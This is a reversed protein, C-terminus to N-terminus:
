FNVNEIDGKDLIDISSIKIVEKNSSKQNLYAEFKTGFLTSPRLYQQMDKNNLWENCKNDIVTIFDDYEYGENFRAVIHKKTTQNNAKYKKGTRDNLYSLIDSIKDLSIKDLRYQTELNSVNQICEINQTTYSGNEKISIQSMEETYTTSKKRDKQITNHILWHKILVVGNEFSLIFRKALLIKMDDERAGVLRMVAKANGCFGDDDSNMNLHFYLCQATPPLDLFADTETIKKNFMRKTAM